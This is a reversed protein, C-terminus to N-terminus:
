STHGNQLESGCLIALQFIGGPARKQKPSTGRRHSQAKVGRGVSAMLQLHYVAGKREAIQGVGKHTHAHRLDGIEMQLFIGLGGVKHM